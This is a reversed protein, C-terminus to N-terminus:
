CRGNQDFDFPMIKWEVFNGKELEGGAQDWM